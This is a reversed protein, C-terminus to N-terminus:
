DDGNQLEAWGDGSTEDMENNGEWTFDSGLLEVVAVLV